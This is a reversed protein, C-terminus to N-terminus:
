HTLCVVFNIDFVFEPQFYIEASFFKQRFCIGTSFLDRSFFYRDLVFQPQFYIEASFFIPRFYIGTPFLDRSSFFSRNSIFRQMIFVFKHRFCIGTSIFVKTTFLSYIQQCFNASFFDTQFFKRCPFSFNRGSLFKALLISLIFQINFIFQTNGKHAM